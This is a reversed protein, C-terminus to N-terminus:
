IIMYINEFFYIIIKNKSFYKKLCRYLCNENGKLKYSDIDLDNRNPILEHQFSQVNSNDKAWEGEKLINNLNIKM